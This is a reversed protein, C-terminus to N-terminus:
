YEKIKVEILEIINKVDIKRICGVPNLIFHSNNDKKNWRQLNKFSKLTKINEFSMKNTEYCGINKNYAFVDVLGCPGDCYNSSYKNETSYIKNSNTLLIKSSVSTEVLIGSKDFIKALHLPGSDVFIGFNIKSIELILSKLDKPKVLLFNNKKNKDELYKSFYSDDIIIRIQFDNKFYKVLKEIIEYPLSRLVSTSVPFISLTKKFNKISYNNIIKFDNLSVKFHNCIELAINSRKYKQFRLANIELTIHFVTDYKKLEEESIFLSYINLFLFYKKYFFSYDSCFAIGIKSFKKSEILSKIAIGYEVADGLGFRPPLCILIKKGIITTELRIEHQLNCFKIKKNRKNLEKWLAINKSYYKKNPVIQESLYTFPEKLLSFSFFAM